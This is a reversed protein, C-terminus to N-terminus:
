DMYKSIVIGIITAAGAIIGVWVKSDADLHAAQVTIKIVLAQLAERIARIDSEIGDVRRRLEELQVEHREGQPCKGDEHM